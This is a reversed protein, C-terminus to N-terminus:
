CDPISRLVYSYNDVVKKCRNQDKVCDPLFTLMGGNEPIDKDFMIDILYM